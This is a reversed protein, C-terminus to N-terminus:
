ICSYICFGVFLLRFDLFFIVIDRQSFSKIPLGRDTLGNLGLTKKTPCQCVTCVLILRRMVRRRILAEVINKCFTRNFNSYLHLFFWGFDRLVSISQELQYRHSIVIPKFLNVVFCTAGEPM